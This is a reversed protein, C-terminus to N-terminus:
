RSGSVAARVLTRETDRALWFCIAALPLEALTAELAAELLEGGARATLLDFWADCVLLTGTVSAAIPIWATRRALAYATFAAAGALAADFGGWAISWHPTVHHSPLRLALYVTWPVIVFAVAGMALALRRRALHLDALPDV